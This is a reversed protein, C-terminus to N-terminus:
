ADDAADGGVGGEGGGLADAVALGVLGGDALDRIDDVAGDGDLDDGGVDLAHDGLAAVDGAPDGVRPDLYGAGHLAELGDGDQSALADLDVLGEAEGDVLGQKPAWAPEVTTLGKTPRRSSMPRSPMSRMASMAEYVFLVLYFGLYHRGADAVGEM